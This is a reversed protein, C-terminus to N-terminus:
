AAPNWDYIGPAFDQKPAYRRLDDLFRNQKRLLITHEIHIGSRSLVIIRTGTFRWLFTLGSRLDENEWDSTITVVEPWSIFRRRTGFLSVSCLGSTDVIVTRPWTIVLSLFILILFWVPLQKGGGTHGLLQEVIALGSSGMVFWWFLRWGLKARYVDAGQARVVAREIAECVTFYFAAIALLGFWPM